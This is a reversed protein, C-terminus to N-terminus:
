NSEQIALRGKKRLLGSWKWKFVFVFGQLLKRCFPEYKFTDENQRKSSYYRLLKPNPHPFWKGKIWKNEPVM